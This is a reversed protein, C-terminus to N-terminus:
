SFIDNFKRKKSIVKKCTPKKRVRRRRGDGQIIRKGVNKLSQKGHHKVSNRFSTNGDMLDLAVGKGFEKAAPLLYKKLLPILRPGYTALINALGDGHQLNKKRFINIDEIGAGRTLYPYSKLCEDFQSATLTHYPVRM